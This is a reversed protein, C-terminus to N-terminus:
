KQSGIEFALEAVKIITSNEYNVVATLTYSGTELNKPLQTNVWRIDNPLTYFDSSKLQTKAGTNSNFLEWSVAGDVWIAGTNKLTLVVSKTGPDKEKLDFGIIEIAPQANETFSHYIKVGMRVSVKIAAGNEDTGGDGPNMQTLFMLATHVPIERNGTKPVNLIVDLKKREGPQLVFYSSPMVKIWNAASTKLSGSEFIQNNGEKGYNWDKFSIGVEIEVNTPNSVFLGQTGEAGSALHYYFKVPTASIGAQGYFTSCSLLFTCFFVFRM